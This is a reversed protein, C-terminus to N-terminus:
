LNVMPRIMKIYATFIFQLFSFLFLSIILMSSPFTFGFISGLIILLTIGISPLVGVFILYLLIFVNLKKSYTRIENLQEETIVEIIENLPQAIEAGTKKATIIQNLIRKFKTSPTTERTIELAEEINTGTEAMTIIEKFYAGSVGYSKSANLMANYLPVGSELKILLYRASFLVNRDLEKKFKGIKYSPYQLRFFLFIVFFVVFIILYLYIPIPVGMTEATKSFLFFVTITITASMMLSVKLSSKVFYDASDPIKASILLKEFKRIDPILMQTLKSVM